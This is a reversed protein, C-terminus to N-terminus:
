CRSLSRLRQTLTAIPTTGILGNTLQFIRLYDYTAWYYLYGQWSAPTSYVSHGGFANPIEQVIQSNNKSNFGGMKDRNVM